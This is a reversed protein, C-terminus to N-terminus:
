GGQLGARIEADTPGDPMYGKAGPFGYPPSHQVAPYMMVVVDRCVVCYDLQMYQVKADANCRYCRKRKGWM